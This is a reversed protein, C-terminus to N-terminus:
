VFEKEMEDAVKGAEKLEKPLNSPLGEQTYEFNETKTKYWDKFRSIIGTNKQNQHASNEIPIIKKGKSSFVEFVDGNATHKYCMDVNKNKSQNIVFEGLATTDIKGTVKSLYRKFHPMDKASPSIFAMGFNTDSKRIDM